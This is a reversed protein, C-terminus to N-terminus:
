AEKYKELFAQYAAPTDLDIEGGPFDVTAILGQYKKIIKRAGEDQHLTALQPFLQKSFIAPVGKVGAYKSAVINSKIAIYKNILLQLIETTLYPQDCVLVMVADFVEKKTSFYEMGKKLTTGMGKEWDENITIAVGSETTLARRITSANAGLVVVTKQNLLNKTLVITRELLTQQGIKLLQKPTGMRRSAGAALIIIGIKPLIFLNKTPPQFQAANTLVIVIWRDDM